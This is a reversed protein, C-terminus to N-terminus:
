VDTKGADFYRVEGTSRVGNYAIERRWKGSAGLRVALRKTESLSRAVHVTAGPIHITWGAQCQQGTILAMGKRIYIM